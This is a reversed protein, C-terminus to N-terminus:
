RLAQTIASRLTLTDFPKWLFAQPRDPHDGAMVQAHAYGSALIVPLGPELKRLAALTAWGDMGPMTLDTIVCRIGGPHAKLCDVAEQGNSATLLQFGMSKILAGTTQVLLDDDDVLLITGGQAEAAPPQIGPATAPMAETSVPLFVRFTSGQGPASEVQIAGGHGQIIGLAVSLGLGRGTFKTSYFPDFLKDLDAPAIGCGSDEVELCAYERRQPQWGVPFRHTAPLAAPPRTALRLTLLGNAKGMAEWANTVLNTLVLRFQDADVSCVPGPEPLEAELALGAPRLGELQALGERCREALRTPQRDNSAKGLYVLMSKSVEAAKETAKRALTVFRAPGTADPPSGMMDLSTMVSQLQNNFHHAISGAMRGLSEAKQLQRNEAELAAKETQARRLDAIMAEGRAQVERFHDHLRQNLLFVFGFTWLTSCGLITLLLTLHGPSPLLIDQAPKRLASLGLVMACSGYALFVGAQFLASAKAWSPTRTLFTWAILWSLATLTVALNLRRATLHDDLFTFYCAVLLVAAVWALLLGRHERRGLFRSVGVLFLALSAVLLAHNALVVWPGLAPSVKWPTGLFALAFAASGLAWWGPGQEGPNMRFQFLFILGQLLGTLSLVIALTNPDMTM